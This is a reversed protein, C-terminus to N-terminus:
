TRSEQTHKGPYGPRGTATGHGGSGQYPVFIAALSTEAVPGFVVTAGDAAGVNRPLGAHPPLSSVGFSGAQAGPPLGSRGAGPVQGSGLMMYSEAKKDRRWVPADRADEDPVHRSARIIGDNM